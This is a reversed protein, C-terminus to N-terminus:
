EVQGKELKDHIYSNPLRGIYCERKRYRYWSREQQSVLIDMRSGTLKRHSVKYYGVQPEEVVIDIGIVEGEVGQDEEVGGDRGLAFGLGDGKKGRETLYPNKERPPRVAFRIYRGDIGQLLYLTDRLLLHIPFPPRALSTLNTM